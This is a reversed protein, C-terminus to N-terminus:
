ILNMIQMDPCFDQIQKLFLMNGKRIESGNESFM